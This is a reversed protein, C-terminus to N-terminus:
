PLRELWEAPMGTGDARPETLGRVSVDFFVLSFRGDRGHVRGVRESVHASIRFDLVSATRTPPPGATTTTAVGSDLYWPVAGPRALNGVRIHVPGADYNDPDAIGSAGDAGLGSRGTVNVAYTRQMGPGLRARTTPCVLVSTTAYLNAGSGTLGAAQQTVLAWNPVAAYPQGLAPSFGRNADAYDTSIVAIQRLNSRCVTSRGAERATSLAPVLIGVLVAVIAVVLLLEILSFGRTEPGLAPGRRTPSAERTFRPM